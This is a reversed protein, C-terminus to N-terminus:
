HHAHSGAAHTTEVPVVAAPVHTVIARLAGALRPYKFSYGLALAKAPLVKQGTTIIGAVEGLVLNLLGDPPGFPVFVRWPTLRTRLVSSFTKAFEANRVPEPATGNLPGSAGANEVALRIIGVIDDIHIWSMWQSGKALFRGASGIPAGPALKFIPTMIQLAGAGPALVIGTRVVARRVGAAEITASVEECERSLVALFDSGSPSSEDLEEDGKPGYFGIASGQVFVRPRSRAQKIAAVLQEASHVRSDRLTRKIESNWRKAFINHGALNVVADCGDIAEQWRGATTPDGAVVQYPWMARERRLHDADRSLIVPEHGGNLLDLALSRGILGSGGAIFVRMIAVKSRHEALLKERAPRRTM